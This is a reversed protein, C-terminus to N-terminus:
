IGIIGFFLTAFVILLGSLIHFIMNFRYYQKLYRTSSIQLLALIGWAAWLFWGHTTFFDYKSLDHPEHTSNLSDSINSINSINLSASSSTNLYSM